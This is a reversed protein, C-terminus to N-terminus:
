LGVDEYEGDVAGNGLQPYDKEVSILSDEYRKKAHAISYLGMLDERAGKNHYDELETFFAELEEASWVEDSLVFEPVVVESSTNNNQVVKAVVKRVPAGPNLLPHGEPAYAYTPIVVAVSAVQETVFFNNADEWTQAGNYPVVTSDVTICETIYPLHNMTVETIDLELRNNKNPITNFFHQIGFLAAGDKRAGWKGRGVGRLAASVSNNTGSLEIMGYQPNWLIFSFRNQCPPQRHGHGKSWAWDAFPCKPCIVGDAMMTGDEHYGIKVTEGATKDYYEIGLYQSDPAIGNSSKCWLEKAQPDPNYMLRGGQLFGNEPDRWTLSDVLIFELEEVYDNIAEAGLAKQEESLYQNINFTTGRYKNLHNTAGSAVVTMRLARYWERQQNQNEFHPIISNPQQGLLQSYDM